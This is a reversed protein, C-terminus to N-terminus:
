ITILARMEGRVGGEEATGEDLVATKIVYKGGELFVGIETGGGAFWCIAGASAGDRKTWASGEMDACHGEFTGVATVKGNVGYSVKTQPIGDKEGADEFTWSGGSARESETNAANSEDQMTTPTETGSVPAKSGIFFLGGAIAVILLFVITIYKM